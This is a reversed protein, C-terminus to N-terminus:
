SLQSSRKLPMSSTMLELRMYEVVIRNGTTDTRYLHKIKSDRYYCLSKKNDINKTSNVM